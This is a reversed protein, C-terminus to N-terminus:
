WQFLWDIMAVFKVWNFLWAILQISLGNFTPSLKVRITAAINPGNERAFDTTQQLQFYTKRLWTARRDLRAQSVAERLEGCVADACGRSLVFTVLKNDSILPSGHIIVLMVLDEVGFGEVLGGAVGNRQVFLDKILSIDLFGGGGGGGGAGASAAAALERESQWGSKSGYREQLLKSPVPRCPTAPHHTTTLSLQARCWTTECWALTLNDEELYLRYATPLTQTDRRIYATVGIRAWSFPPHHPHIDEEVDVDSDPSRDFHPM